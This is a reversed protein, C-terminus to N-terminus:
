VSERSAELPESHCPKWDGAAVILTIARMSAAVDRSFPRPLGALARARAALSGYEDDRCDGDTERGCLGCAPHAFGLAEDARGQTRGIVSLHENAAEDLLQEATAVSPIRRAPYFADYDDLVGRVPKDDGDRVASERVQPQGSFYAPAIPPPLRVDDRL